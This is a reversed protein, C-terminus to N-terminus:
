SEEPLASSLLWVIKMDDNQDEALKLCNEIYSARLMKTGLMYKVLDHDRNKVAYKLALGQARNIDSGNEILTKVMDSRKLSAAYCIPAEKDNKHRDINIGKKILIDMIDLFDMDIVWYVLHRNEMWDIYDVSKIMVKVIDFKERRIAVDFSRMIFKEDVLDWHVFYKICERFGIRTSFSFLDNAHPTFDYLEEPEQGYFGGLKYFYKISNGLRDSILSVLDYQHKVKQRYFDEKKKHYSNLKLYVEKWTQVDYKEMLQNLKWYVRLKKVNKQNMMEDFVLNGVIKHYIYLSICLLHPNHELNTKLKKTKRQAVEFTYVDKELKEGESEFTYGKEKKDQNVLDNSSKELVHSVEFEEKKLYAEKDQGISRLGSYIELGLPHSKKIESFSNEYDISFSLLYIVEVRKEEPFFNFFVSSTSSFIIKWAERNYIWDLPNEESEFSVSFALLNNYFGMRMILEKDNKGKEFEFILRIINKSAFNVKIANSSVRGGTSEQLESFLGEYGRGSHGRLFPVKKLIIPTGKPFLSKIGSYHPQGILSIIAEMILSGRDSPISMTPFKSIPQDGKKNFYVIRIDGLLVRELFDKPLDEPVSLLWHYPIIFTNVKNKDKSCAGELWHDKEIVWPNVIANSKVDLQQLFERYNISHGMLSKKSVWIINPRNSIFEKEIFDKGIETKDEYRNQYTLVKFSEIQPDPEVKLILDESPKENEIVVCGLNYANKVPPLSKASDFSFSKLVVIEVEKTERFFNFWCASVQPPLHDWQPTKEIFQFPTVYTTKWRLSCAFLNGKFGVKLSFKKNKFLQNKNIEQSLSNFLAKVPVRQFGVSPEIRKLGFFVVSFYSLLEAPKPVSSVHLVSTNLPFSNMIGTSSKNSIFKLMSELIFSGRDTPIGLCPISPRTTQNKKNFYVIRAKGVKLLNSIFDSIKLKGEVVVEYPIIFTLKENTRPQNLDGSLHNNHCVWDLVENELRSNLYNVINSYEIDHNLLAKKDFYILHKEM